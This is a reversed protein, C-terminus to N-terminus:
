PLLLSAVQLSKKPETKKFMQRMPDNHEPAFWWREAMGEMSARLQAVMAHNILLRVIQHADQSDYSSFAIYSSLRM